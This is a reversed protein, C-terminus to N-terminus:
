CILFLYTNKVERWIKLDERWFKLDWAGATDIQSSVRNKTLSGSTKLNKVFFMLSFACISRFRLFEPSPNPLFSGFLLKKRNKINRNQTPFVPFISNPPLKSFKSYFAVFGTAVKRAVNLFFFFFVCLAINTPPRFIAFSLKHALYAHYTIRWRPITSRRQAKSRSHSSSVRVFFCKKRKVLHGWAGGWVRFKQKLEWEWVFKDGNVFRAMAGPLCVVKSM